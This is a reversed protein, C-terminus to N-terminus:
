HPKWLWPAGRGASGFDRFTDSGSNRITDSGFDMFIDSSFDRLTDFGFDKSDPPKRFPFYM